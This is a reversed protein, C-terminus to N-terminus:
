PRSVPEFGTPTMVTEQVSDCSTSDSPLVPRNQKQDSALHSANRPSEAGQQARNQARSVLARTYHGDTVQLYHDQAVSRSNGLWYCVVHLPFDEALETQRTSRMNHFPKPWIRLGARSVIRRFQTRLNKNHTRYRTIVYEAGPEAAEFVELLYTRIESFLPIIRSEHGEIHETKCSWVQIRERDWDVDTWKL